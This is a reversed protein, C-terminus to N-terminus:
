AEVKLVELQNIAGKILTFQDYLKRKLNGPLEPNGLVEIYLEAAANEGTISSDIVTDVKDSSFTAKTALWTRHFYGAYSGSAELEFGLPRAEQKLEEAFLKRQQSLRNFLTQIDTEKLQSAATHYGKYGDTLINVVETLQEKLDM